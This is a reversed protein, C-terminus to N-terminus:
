RKLTLYLGEDALIIALRLLLGQIAQSRLANYIHSLDDVIRQRRYNANRLGSIFDSRVTTEDLRAKEKQYKKWLRERKSAIKGILELHHGDRLAQCSSRYELNSHRGGHDSYYNIVSNFREWDFPFPEGSLRRALEQILERATRDPSELWLVAALIWRIKRSTKPDGFDSPSNEALKLMKGALEFINIGKNRNKYIHNDCSTEMRKLLDFFELQAASPRSLGRPQESQWLETLDAQSFPIDHDWSELLARWSEEDYGAPPPPLELEGFFRDQALLAAEDNPDDKTQDSLLDFYQDEDLEYSRSGSFLDLQRPTKERLYVNFHGEVRGQVVHSIELPLNGITILSRINEPPMGTVTKVLLDSTIGKSKLLAHDVILRCSPGHWSAATGVHPIVTRITSM